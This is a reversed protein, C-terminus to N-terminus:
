ASEELYKALWETRAQIAANEFGMPASLERYRDRISLLDPKIDDDATAANWNYTLVMVIHNAVKQRREEASV